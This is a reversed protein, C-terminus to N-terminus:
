WGDKIARLGPGACMLSLLKAALEAFIFLSSMDPSKQKSKDIQEPLLTARLCYMKGTWLKQLRLPVNQALWLCCRGKGELLCLLRNKAFILPM